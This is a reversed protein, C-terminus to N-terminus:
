PKAELKSRLGDLDAYGVGAFDKANLTIAQGNMSLFMAVRLPNDPQEGITALSFPMSYLCHAADIDGNVLADRLAPWSAQKEISAEIGREAFYGLEQAMVISACDTLAIFGIKVKKPAVGSAGAGGAATTPGGAGAVTAGDDGGCAALAGGLVPISAGAAALRLFSRRDM